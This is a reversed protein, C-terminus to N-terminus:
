GGEGKYINNRESESKKGTDRANDRKHRHGLGTPKNLQKGVAENGIAEAVCLEDNHDSNGAVSGDLRWWGRKQIFLEEYRKQDWKRVGCGDRERGTRKECAYECVRGRLCLRLYACVCVCM